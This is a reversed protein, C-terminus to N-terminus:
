QPEGKSTIVTTKPMQKNPDKIIVGKWFIITLLINDMLYKLFHYLIIYPLVGTWISLNPSRKNIFLLDRSTGRSLLGGETWKGRSSVLLTQLTKLTRHPCFHLM